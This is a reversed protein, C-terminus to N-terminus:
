NKLRTSRNFYRVGATLLLGAFLYILATAALSSGMGIHSALVAVIVPAAGGGLWGISNMLGVATARLQVPVVDYLSAWINADYLGKFLGFGILAGVLVPISLTSGTLALFPVGALLGIAQTAMRGGPRRRALRDAAVGGSLVGLVSAAQLWATSNFGAMSLSMHFKDHLFSPLWTLMVLAVFNACIFVAILANVMPIQLVQVVSKWASSSPISASEDLDATGRIPEALAALLVLGLAVGLSGFFYFGSRWGFFQAFMGAVTGGAITGAYVSSQHLSMARSRTAPGHYDSILSMSAPFYFAEGLGQVARFVILHWYRTSFATALTVLSWFILGGVILRKRPLRDAILGAFPLAAAYAWNFAVGIKGLQIDSLKLQSKLLPFVSFIAQRDAYNLLCASWLMGVVCWAYVTSARDRSVAYDLAPPMAPHQPM